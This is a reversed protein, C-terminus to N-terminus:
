DDGGVEMIVDGDWTEVIFQERAEMPMILPMEIIPNQRGGIVRRWIYVPLSVGGMGEFPKTVMLGTAAAFAGAVLGLVPKGMQDLLMMAGMFPMAMAMMNVMTLGGWFRTEYKLINQPWEYTLDDVSTDKSM